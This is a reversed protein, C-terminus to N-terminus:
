RSLRRREPRISRGAVGGAAAGIGAAPDLWGPSAGEHAAGVVGGGNGATAGGRSGTAGVHDEALWGAVDVGPWGLQPAGGVASGAAEGRVAGAACAAGGGAAGGELVGAGVMGGNVAGV